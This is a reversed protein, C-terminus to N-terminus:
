KEENFDVDSIVKINNDKLMKTLFGCGKIKTHTFTGDYIFNVGCTPRNEKLIVLDINNDLILKLAKNCGTMVKDTIDLNEKNIARGDKIEFPIRPIPLDGLVEPCILIVDNNKELEKIKLNLNNSGNYKCNIGCLCKSIAYKM